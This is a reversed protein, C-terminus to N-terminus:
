LRQIRRDSAQTKRQVAKRRLAREHLDFAVLRDLALDGGQALREGRQGIREAAVGLAAAAQGADAFAGRLLARAERVQGLAAGAVRDVPVLEARVAEREVGRWQVQGLRQALQARVAARGPDEGRR